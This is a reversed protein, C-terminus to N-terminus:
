NLKPNSKGIEMRCTPCKNNYHSLWTELCKNHFIHNCKLQIINEDEKFTELCISCEDTNYIEKKFIIEKKEMQKTVLPEELRTTLRSSRREYPSCNCCLYVFCLSCIMLLIETRQEADVVDMDTENNQSYM